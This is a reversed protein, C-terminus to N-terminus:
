CHASAFGVWRWWTKKEFIGMGVGGKPMLELLSIRGSLDIDLARWAGGMNGPPPFGNPRSAVSIKLAKLIWPVITYKGVHIAFIHITFPSLYIYSLRGMSGYHVYDM